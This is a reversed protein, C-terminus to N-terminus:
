PAERAVQMVNKTPERGQRRRKWTQKRHQGPAHATEMEM